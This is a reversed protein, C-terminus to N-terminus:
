REPLVEYRLGAVAVAVADARDADVGGRPRRPTEYGKLRGAQALYALGRQVSEKSALETSAFCSKVLAQSIERVRSGRLACAALAVGKAESLAIVTGQSRSRHYNMRGPVEVYVADPQYRALLQDLCCAIHALALEHPKDATDIVGWGVLTADDGDDGTVVAYGTRRLALDLGLIRM